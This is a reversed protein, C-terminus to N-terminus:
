RTGQGRLKCRLDDLREPDRDGCQWHGMVRQVSGCMERSEYESLIDIPIQDNKSAEEKTM